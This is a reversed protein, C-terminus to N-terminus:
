DKRTVCLVSRRETVPGAFEALWRTMTMECPYDEFGLTECTILGDLVGIIIESEYQKYPFIQNPLERHLARCGQCRLRRMPFKWTKRNKTRVIRQVRDYYKLEGGCKPCISVDRNVM